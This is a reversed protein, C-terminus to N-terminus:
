ALPTSPGIKSYTSPLAYTSVFNGIDGRVNAHRLKPEAQTRM